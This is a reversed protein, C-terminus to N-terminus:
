ALVRSLVGLFAMGVTGGKAEGHRGKERGEIKGWIRGRKKERRM